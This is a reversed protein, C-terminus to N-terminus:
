TASGPELGADALPAEPEVALMGVATVRTGDMACVQLRTGDLEVTTGVEPDADGLHRRVLRELTDHDGGPLNVGYSNRVDEVTTGGKLRIEVQPLKEAVQAKQGGHLKKGARRGFFARPEGSRTKPIETKTM